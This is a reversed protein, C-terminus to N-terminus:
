DDAIGHVRACTEDLEAPPDHGHPHHMGCELEEALIVECLGLDM